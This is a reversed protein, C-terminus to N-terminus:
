INMLSLSLYLLDVLIAGLTLGLLILGPLLWQRPLYDMLVDRLGVWSHVLLLVVALVTAIWFEGAFVSAKFDAFTAFSQQALYWASLPFYILLYVASIRQWLYAKLGSILQTM